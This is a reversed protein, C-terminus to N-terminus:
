VLRHASNDFVLEVKNELKKFVDELQKLMNTDLM